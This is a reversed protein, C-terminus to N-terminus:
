VKTDVKFQEEIDLKGITHKAFKIFKYIDMNALEKRYKEFDNANYKANQSKQEEIIEKQSRNLYLNWYPLIKSHYDYLFKHGKYGIKSNNLSKALEIDCINEIIVHSLNDLDFISHLSEHVLYVLDYNCDQMGQDHGWVFENNGINHGSRINPSVIYGTTTIDLTNKFIKSLFENIYDQKNKWNNNIRKLNKKALAVNKEFFGQNKIEKIINFDIDNANINQKLLTYSSNYKEWLYNAFDVPMRSKSIMERAMINKDFKLNIKLM